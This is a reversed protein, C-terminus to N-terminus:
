LVSYCFNYKELM